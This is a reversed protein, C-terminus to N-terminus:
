PNWMWRIEKRLSGRAKFISILTSLSLRFRLGAKVQACQENLMTFTHKATKPSITTRLRDVSSIDLGRVAVDTAILIIQSRARFKNLSALRASQSFQSHIRIAPFGLNWLITTLQQTEQITQTFIITMQGAHKNSKYFACREMQIPRFCLVALAYCVDSKTCYCMNTAEWIYRKPDTRQSRIVVLICVSVAIPRLGPHLTRHTCISM